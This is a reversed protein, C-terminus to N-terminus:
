PRSTPPHADLFARMIRAVEEPRDNQIWHSCGEVVHAESVEAVEELRDMLEPMLAADERAM